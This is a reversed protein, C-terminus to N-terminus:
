EGNSKNILFKAIKKELYFNGCYSVMGLQGIPNIELFYYNDENKIMDISGTSLNLKKMLLKIKDYIDEPLIYPVMRNPKNFDYKRFDISTRKNTSSFIAITYTEGDIYFIRIEYKKEIKEQILSPIFQKGWLRLLFNIL